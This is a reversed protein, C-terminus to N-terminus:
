NKDPSVRYNQFICYNKVKKTTMLITSGNGYQVPVYSIKVIKLDSM